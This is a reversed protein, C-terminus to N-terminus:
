ISSIEVGYFEEILVEDNEIHAEEACSAVERLKREYVLINERMNKVVGM